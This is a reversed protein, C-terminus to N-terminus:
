PNKSDSKFSRKKNLSGMAFIMKEIKERDKGSVFSHIPLTVLSHAARKAVPFTKGKFRGTLEQIGAVCDPYTPMIGLRMCDAERLLWDKVETDDIRVPFRTMDAYNGNEFLYPQTHKIEALSAWHKSNEARHKRFEKLKNQWGKTMGAQFSSMKMMAFRPDYITEGLRLFPLAKPLWFLNPHLFLSLAAASFFLRLLGDARYEPLGQFVAEIARAIRDENTVVIGGEVVSIAKGRGLSFFGANGLTGLKKGRHEGAMVQAADEIVAIGQGAALEKVREIDSHLGFLHTPVVCLIPCSKPVPTHETERIIKSLQDFNFDLSDRTIDCLRVKLGARVIASPISFCTFAPILVETRGPYITKLAELIVAFAAKGSSVLFCHRVGFYERIEAKFREIERKKSILGGIGCLLDRLFIPAAAPPLTRQIKM